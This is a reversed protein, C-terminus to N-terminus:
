APFREKRVLLPDVDLPSRSRLTPHKNALDITSWQGAHGVARRAISPLARAAPISHSPARALAAAKLPGEFPQHLGANDATATRLAKGYFAAGPVLKAPPVGAELFEDIARATDRGQPDTAGASRFLGAHHGTPQGPAGFFDYTMLHVADVLTRSGTRM